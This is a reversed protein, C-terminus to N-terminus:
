SQTDRREEAGRRNNSNGWRKVASVGLFAFSRLSPSKLDLNVGQRSKGELGTVVRFRHLPSVALAGTSVCANSWEVDPVCISWRRFTPFRLADSRADRRPCQNRLFNGRRAIHASTRNTALGTASLFLRDPWHLRIADGALSVKTWVPM